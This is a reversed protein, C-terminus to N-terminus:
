RKVAPVYLNVTEKEQVSEGGSFLYAPLRIKENGGEKDLLFEYYTLRVERFSFNLQQGENPSKLELEQELAQEPLLLSYFGQPAVDGKEEYYYAKIDKEEHVHLILAPTAQLFVEAYSGQTTEYIKVKLNDGTRVRFGQDALLQRAWETTGFDDGNDAAPAFKNPEWSYRVNDVAYLEDTASGYNLLVNGALTFKRRNEYVEFAPDQPLSPEKEKDEDVEDDKGAPAPTAPEQDQRSPSEAPSIEEEGAPDAEPKVDEGKIDEGAETEQLPGETVADPKDVAPPVASIVGNRDAPYDRTDGILPSEQKELRPDPEGPAQVTHQLVSGAFFVLLVAAAVVGISRHRLWPRSKVAELISAIRREQQQEKQAAAQSLLKDRLEKQFSSSHHAEPINAFLSATEKLREVEEPSDCMEELSQDWHEYSM